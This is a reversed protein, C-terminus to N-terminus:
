SSRRHRVTARVAPSPAAPATRSRDRGRALHRRGAAAEDGGRCAVVRGTVERRQAGHERERQPRRVAAAVVHLRRQALGSRPDEGLTLATVGGVRRAQGVERRPHRRRDRGFPRQLM